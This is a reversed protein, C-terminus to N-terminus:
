ALSPITLRLGHGLTETACCHRARDDLRARGILIQRHCGKTDGDLSRCNQYAARIRAGVLLSYVDNSGHDSDKHAVYQHAAWAANRVQNLANLFDALVDPDVKASLLLKHLLQLESIGKELQLRANTDGTGSQMEGQPSVQQALQTQEKKLKRAPAAKTGANRNPM